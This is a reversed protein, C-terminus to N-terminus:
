HTETPYDCQEILEGLDAYNQKCFKRRGGFRVDYKSLMSDSRFKEIVEYASQVEAFTVFGFRLSYPNDFEDANSEFSIVSMNLEGMKKRTCPFRRSPAMISSVEDCTRRQSM